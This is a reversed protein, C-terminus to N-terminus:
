FTYGVGVGGFMQDRSGRISTFPTDAADGLMRSYSGIAFLGIGGNTIDGDVDYALLLAAGARTFGSSDATFAPLGSVDSQAPSVTFYYDHFDADAWEANLSLSAALARSVPTFYTVSPIVVMGGHAGNVDWLVDANASLSDFPNLVAPFRVGATPGVEIARDLEGLSEVVEDKIQNARDSRLRVAAGLNLGTASPPDPIVDFAIGAGRPNISIGGISGQVLPLPKLVFDDSGAYSTGYAVGFGLTIFDGSFATDAYADAPPGGRGEAQASAVAGADDQEVGQALAPAALGASALIAFIVPPSARFATMITMMMKLSSHQTRNRALRAVIPAQGHGALCPRIADFGISM